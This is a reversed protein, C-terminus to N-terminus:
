NVGMELLSLRYELDLLIVDRDVDPDQNNAKAENEKKASEVWALYDSKTTQEFGNDQVWGIPARGAGVIKGNENKVFYYVM